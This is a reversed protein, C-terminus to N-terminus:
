GKKASYLIPPSKTVQVMCPGALMECKWFVLVSERTSVNLHKPMGDDGTIIACSRRGPFINCTLLSGM